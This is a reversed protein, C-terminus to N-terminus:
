NDSNSKMRPQEMGGFFVETPIDLNVIQSLGYSGPYLSIRVFKANELPLDSFVYEFIKTIGPRINPAYPYKSTNYSNGYSDSLSVIIPLSTGEYIRPKLIKTTTSNTVAIVVLTNKNQYDTRDVEVIEFEVDSANRKLYRLSETQWREVLAVREVAVHNKDQARKLDRTVYGRHESIAEKTETYNKAARSGSFGVGFCEGLQVKGTNAREESKDLALNVADFKLTEEFLNAESKALKALSPSQRPKSYTKLHTKLAEARAEERAKVAAYLVYRSSAGLGLLSYENSQLRSCDKSASALQSQQNATTFQSLQNRCGTSLITISVVALLTISKEAIM